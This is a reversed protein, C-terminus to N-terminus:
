RQVDGTSGARRRHNARIRPDRADGDARGHGADAHGDAGPRVAGPPLHRGSRAWQRCHHPGRRDAGLHAAGRASQDSPGRGPPHAAAVLARRGAGARRGRDDMRSLRGPEHRPDVSDGRQLPQGPRAPIEGLDRRGDTRDLDQLHLTGAGSGGFERSISGDAQVFRGFLRRGTEADFGIGTDGVDVRLRSPAGPITSDDVSVGITVAGAQTFKIANSALNSIVQRLRVGDGEFVGDAGAEYNVQFRLGKEDARARMLEASAEIERRLDFPAVQLQFNGADIKAQDLIDSLMRDLMQGSSQILEVMERQDSALETRALAGAVGVVGNLPTRIEHSMNAVFISKAENASEAQALAAELDHELAKRASIDITTGVLRWARGDPKRAILRARSLIWIFGGDERRMRIEASAYPTDGRFHARYGRELRPVDDPHVYDRWGRVLSTSEGPEYGLMALWNPSVELEDALVDIEFMGDGSAEIAVSLKRELDTVALQRDALQTMLAGHDVSFRQYAVSALALLIPIIAANWSLGYAMWPGVVAAVAAPALTAVLLARTANSYIFTNLVVGGIWTTALVAGLPTGGALFMLAAAQYLSSGILNVCVYAASAQDDPLQVLQRELPPAILWEWVIIAGIWAVMGTWPLVFAGIAAYIAAFAVRDILSRRSLEVMTRVDFVQAAPPARGPSADDTSISNRATGEM